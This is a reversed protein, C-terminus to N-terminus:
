EEAGFKSAEGSPHFGKAAFVVRVTRLLIMIDLWITCSVSM